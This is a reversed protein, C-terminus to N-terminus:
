RATLSLIQRQQPCRSQTWWYDPGAMAFSTSAALVSGALLLLLLRTIRAQM